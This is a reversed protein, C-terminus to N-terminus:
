GRVKQLFREVEEDLARVVQSLNKASWIVRVTGACARTSSQALTSVNASVASAEHAVADINTAIEQTAAEQEQVAGAIASSAHDLSRITDAVGQISAIMERTSNQVASVQQAIEDTARATQNALNKVEGAVVAFGKGAEGARAAEITANLALLNTQSAIDNILKVIEGISQVAVSLEDMHSTTAAVDDVAKRAVGSSQGVQQAIENVSMALQRTAAAVIAARENTTRASDGVQLSQGGSHESHEAMVRATRGIASTSVSVEAVKAKVTAEFHDAMANLAVIKGQEARAQEAERAQRLAENEQGNRKFVEVAGAMTGIEDRASTFPVAVSFDGTALTKMVATIRRLPSVIKAQVVYGATAVGLVLGAVLVMILRMQNSAFESAVMDHLRAVESENDAALAKIRDNLASRVKRNADNDGFARAEPLSAERSLRVLEMRFRIFDETAKEAEAFSGRRAAPMQDRWEGLVARLRELNKLLPLAYKESEAGSQAMYIGRSDMVVALILGNVREGLVASRSVDGMEDVVGKYSRLTSLGIAGVVM